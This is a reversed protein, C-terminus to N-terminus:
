ERLLRALGDYPSAAADAIRAATGMLRERLDRKAEPEPDAQERARRRMAAFAQEVADGAAVRVPSGDGLDRFIPDDYASFQAPKADDPRGGHCPCFCRQTPNLGKRRVGPCLRHAQYHCDAFLRRSPQPLKEIDSIAPM